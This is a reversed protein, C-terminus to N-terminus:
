TAALVVVEAVSGIAGGLEFEVASLTYKVSSPLSGAAPVRGRGCRPSAPAAALKIIIIIIIIIESDLCGTPHRLGGIRAARVSPRPPSCVGEEQPFGAQEANGKGRGHPSDRRALPEHVRPCKRQVDCRRASVPHLVPPLLAIVPVGGVAVAARRLADNFGLM